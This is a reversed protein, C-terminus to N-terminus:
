PESAEPPPTAALARIAFACKEAELAKDLWGPEKSRHYSGARSECVAACAEVIARERERAEELERRAVILAEAVHEITDCGFPFEEALTTGYEGDWYELARRQNSAEWRCCKRAEELERRLLRNAILLRAMDTGPEPLPVTFAGAATAMDSDRAALETRAEELERTLRAVESRLQAVEPVLEMQGVRVGAEYILVDSVSLQKHGSM